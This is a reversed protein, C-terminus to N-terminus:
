KKSLYDVYIFRDLKRIIAGTFQAELPVEWSLSSRQFVSGTAPARAWDTFITDEKNTYVCARNAGKTGIGQAFGMPVGIINIETQAFERLAEKIAALANINTAGNTISADYLGSLTLLDMSDIAITDPMVIQDSANYGLKILNIFWSRAESGSMESIPKQKTMDEISVAPNNMMGTVDRRRAHGILATKQITRLCVGRLNELKTTDLQIGFRKAREVGLSTYVIGKAWDIYGMKKGEINVDELEISTTSEDVLGNDLDQTGKEQGYLVDTTQVNGKQTITMFKGLQVDPYEQKEFTNDFEIATQELTDQIDVADM